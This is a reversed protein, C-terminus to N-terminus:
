LQITEDSFNILRSDHTALIIIRTHKIDELIKILKSTTEEDLASTPEDFLLLSSPKSLCQALAIRQKQGGSLKEFTENNLANKKFLPLIPQMKDDLSELLNCFHINQQLNKCEFFMPTQELVSIKEKRLNIMDLKTIALDNMSLKGCYQKLYMGAIINLLTSKGSGNNGKVTYIRGPKFTYSFDQIVFENEKYAFSLNEIDVSDINKIKIVGNNEEAIRFIEVIRDFSVRTNEITQGLTFFFRISDLAYSFFISLITFQGITLSNSLVLRGGVFFSGIIMITYITNDLSSYVYNIKQSRMTIRLLNTYARSFLKGITAQASQLKISRVRTIQRHYLSFFSAQVETLERNVEYVKKRMLIYVLIYIMILVIMLIIMVPHISAIILLTTVFLLINSVINFLWSVSFSSVTNTDINMRQTLTTLDTKESEKLSISQFHSILDKSIEFVTNSQSITHNKDRLYSLFIGSINMVFFLISYELINKFTTTRTLLDIFNGILYPSLLSIILNLSGSFYYKYIYQRSTLLYPRMFRMINLM